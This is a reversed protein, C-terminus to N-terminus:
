CVEESRLRKEEALETEHIALRQQIDACHRQGESLAAKLQRKDELHCQVQLRLESASEQLTALETALSSKEKRIQECQYELDSKACKANNRM